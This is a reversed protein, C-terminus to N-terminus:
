QKDNVFGCVENDYVLIWVKKNKNMCESIYSVSTNIAAPEDDIDEIFYCNIYNNFNELIHKVSVKDLVVYRTTVDYYPKLEVGM